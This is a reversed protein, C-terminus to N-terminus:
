DDECGNIRRYNRLLLGNEGCPFFEQIIPDLIDEVEPISLYPSIDLSNVREVFKHLYSRAKPTEKDTILAVILGAEAELILTYGGHRITELNEREDFIQSAFNNIASIFGSILEPEARFDETLGLSYLPIGTNRLIIIAKPEAGGYLDKKQKIAYVASIILIVGFLGVLIPLIIELPLDPFGFSPTLTVTFFYRATNENGASDNVFITLVWFGIEDPLRFEETLIKWESSNWSYLQTDIHLESISLNVIAGPWSQTNNSPSFLNIVPATDDTTYIFSKYNINGAKDTVNLYLTHQTESTPLAVQYPATLTQWEESDWHYQVSDLYLDSISFSITTGGKHVTNSALSQSEPEIAPPSVDVTLNVSAVVIQGMTDVAIARITHNSETLTIVAWNEYTRTQSVGDVFIEYYAIPNDDSGALTVNLTANTLYSYTIPSTIQVKPLADIGFWNITRNIVDARDNRSSIAEFAFALFVTKNDGSYRVASGLNGTNNYNMCPIGNNVANIEDPSLNNQAGDGGGLSYNASDFILDGNVGSVNVANTNDSNYSVHLNNALWVSFNPPTISEAAINQGSIFLKGGTNLYYEIANQEHNKLTSDSEDGTFWIVIQHRRITSDPPSADTANWYDYSVNPFADELATIYFTEYSEGGDDDVVLIPNANTDVITGVSDYSVQENAVAKAVFTANQDDELCSVNITYEYYGTLNNYNDTINIWVDTKFQVGVYSPNAGTINVKITLSNSLIQGQVPSVISVNLNSESTYMRENLEISAAEPLPNPFSATESIVFVSLLVIIIALKSIRNKFM